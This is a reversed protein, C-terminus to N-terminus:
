PLIQKNGMLQFIRSEDFIANSVILDLCNEMAELHTDDTADSFQSMIEEDPQHHHTLAMEQDLRALDAATLGTRGVTKSM